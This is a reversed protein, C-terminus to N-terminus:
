SLIETEGDIGFISNVQYEMTNGFYLLSRSLKSENGVSYHIMPLFRNNNIYGDENVYNKLVGPVLEDEIIVNSNSISKRDVRVIGYNKVNYKKVNFLYAAKAFVEEYRLIIDCLNIVRKDIKDEYNNDIDLTCKRIMAGKIIGSSYIYKEVVGNTSAVMYIIKEGQVYRVLPDGEKVYHHVGVITSMQVVNELSIESTEFNEMISYSGLISDLKSPEVYTSSSYNLRTQKNCIDKANKNIYELVEGSLCKGLAIMSMISKDSSNFETGNQSLEIDIIQQLDTKISMLDKLSKTVNNSVRRICNQAHRPNLIFGQHRWLNMICSPQLMFAFQVKNFSEELEDSLAYQNALEINAAALWPTADVAKLAYSLSEEFNGKKSACNAAMMYCDAVRILRKDYLAMSAAKLTLELAEDIDKKLGSTALIKALEYTSKMDLPRHTLARRFHNIASQRDGLDLAKHAEEIQEIAAIAAPKLLIQSLDKTNISIEDFVFKCSGSEGYNSELYEIDDNTLINTDNGSILEENGIIDNHAIDMQMQISRNRADYLVKFASEIIISCITTIDEDANLFAPTHNSMIEDYWSKLAAEKEADVFKNNKFLKSICFPLVVTNTTSNIAARYELHTYSLNEGPPCGGYSDGVLLIMVESRRVAELCKTLPPKSNVHNDNLDIAKLPFVSFKNIRDVLSKRLNEFEDFRSAIFIETVLASM